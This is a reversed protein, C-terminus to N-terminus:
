PVIDLAGGVIIGPNSLLQPCERKWHGNECCHICVDNARLRQLGGNNGKGKGKGVPAVPASLASTTAIGKEKGKKRKWRETRKGKAKSTTAERILVALVSKHTTAENQVLMNILEYIFKELGNM